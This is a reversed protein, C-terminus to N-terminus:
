SWKLPLTAQIRLIKLKNSLLAQNLLPHKYSALRALEGRVNLWRHLEFKEELFFFVKDVLAEFPLIDVFWITRVFIWRSQKGALFIQFSGPSSAFPYVIGRQSIINIFFSSTFYISDSLALYIFQLIKTLFFLLDIPCYSTISVFKWVKGKGTGEQSVWELLKKRHIIYFFLFAFFYILWRMGSWVHWRKLIDSRTGALARYTKRM